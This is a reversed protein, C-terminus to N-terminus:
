APRAPRAGEAGPPDAPPPPNEGRQWAFLVRAAPIFGGESFEGAGVEPRDGHAARALYLRTDLRKPVHDPTFWRGAPELRGPDIALGHAALLRPFSIGGGQSDRRVEALASPGVRDLGTALLVGVELFLQRVSCVLLAAEVGTCGPVPVTADLPELRGGPFAHWGGAVRQNRGRRVLVVERGKPGDRFLVVAISPVSTSDNM